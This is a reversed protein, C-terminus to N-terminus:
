SRLGQTSDEARHPLPPLIQRVRQNGSWSLNEAWYEDAESGRVAEVIGELYFVVPEFGGGEAATKIAFLARAQTDRDILGKREMDAIWARLNAAVSQVKESDVRRRKAAEDLEAFIRLPNSTAANDLPNFETAFWFQIRGNNIIDAVQLSVAAQTSYGSVPSALRM